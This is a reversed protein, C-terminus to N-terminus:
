VILHINILIISFIPNNNAIVVIGNDSKKVTAFTVPPFPIVLNKALNNPMEPTTREIM